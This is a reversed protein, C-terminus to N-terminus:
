VGSAQTRVVKSLKNLARSSSVLAPFDTKYDTISDRFDIYHRLEAIYKEHFRPSICAYLCKVISILLM